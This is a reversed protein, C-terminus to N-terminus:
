KLSNAFTFAIIEQQEKIAQKKIKFIVNGRFKYLL